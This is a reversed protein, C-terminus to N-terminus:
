QKTIKQIGSKTSVIYMGSPLHGLSITTAEGSLSVQMINKGFMDLLDIHEGNWETCSITIQDTTPNPYINFSVQEATNKIGSPNNTIHIAVTTTDCGSMNCAVFQLTTDHIIPTAFTFTFSGSSQAIGNVYWSTGNTSSCVYSPMDGYLINTPGTVSTTPLPAVYTPVVVHIMYYGGDHFNGVTDHGFIHIFYDDTSTPTFYDDLTGLGYIHSYSHFDIVNSTVHKCFDVTFDSYHFSSMNAYLEHAVVMNITSDYFAGITELNYVPPPASTTFSDTISVPIFYGNAKYGYTYHVGGYLSTLNFTHNQVGTSVAYGTYVLSDTWWPTGSIKWYLTGKPLPYGYFNTGVTISATSSTHTETVGSISAITPVHATWEDLFVTDDGVSNHAIFVPWYETNSTLPGGPITDHIITNAYGSDSRSLWPLTGCGTCSWLAASTYVTGHTSVQGNGPDLTLVFYFTNTDAVTAVSLHPARRVVVANSTDYMGPVSDHYSQIKVWTHASDLVTISNTHTGVSGSYWGTPFVSTFSPSNSLLYRYHHPVTDTSYVTMTAGYGSTKVGKVLSDIQAFAGITAMAVIIATLVIIKKM